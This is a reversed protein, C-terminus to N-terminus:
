YDQKKSILNKPNKSSGTFSIFHIDNLDQKNNYFFVKHYQENLGLAKDLALTIGSFAKYSEVKSSEYKRM